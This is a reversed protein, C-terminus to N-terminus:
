RQWSVNRLIEGESAATWLHEVFYINKFNELIWLFDGISFERKLYTTPRLRLKILFPELVSTKRLIKWFKSFMLFRVVAQKTTKKKLILDEM